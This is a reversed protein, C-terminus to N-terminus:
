KKKKTKKKESRKIGTVETYTGEERERKDKMKEGDIDM